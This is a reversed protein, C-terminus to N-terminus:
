RQDYQVYKELTQDHKFTSMKPLGQMHQSLNQDIDEVSLNSIRHFLRSFISDM